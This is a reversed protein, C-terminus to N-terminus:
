WALAYESEAEKIGTLRLLPTKKTITRMDRKIREYKERITFKGAFKENQWPTGPKPIFPNVSLSLNQGTADIIRRCLTTIGSVDEDSEGPLGIMFYLKVNEIGAKKAMALKEIILDDSFKKGCSARLAEGGTEPAVTVSRRGGRVLADIMEENLRDVRLSAFSVGVNKEDLLGLLPSLQPYDGAEPTVLGARQVDFRSTIDEVANKIVSFDRLRTKGFCQPLTCYRCSRVCGRQLELLLTNGFASKESTWVSHVPYPGNLDLTRDIQLDRVVRGEVIDVPPVFVNPSEALRNWLKERSLGREWARLSETVHNLVDLGDGLIIFDCVGSLSLPNIYSLAGGMGVVPFGGDERQKASLPIGAESLWRFFVPIGGEYAISATIVSFRELLTDADASRYPIPAAFFREAAVGAERLRRFVYQYGLNASGIAYDSPYFLAWPM